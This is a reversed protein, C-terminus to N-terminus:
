YAIMSPVASVLNAYNLICLGIAGAIVLKRPLTSNEYLLGVLAFEFFFFMYSLRNGADIFYTLAILFVGTIYINLFANYIEKKGTMTLRLRLFVFAMIFYKIMTLSYVAYRNFKAHVQTYSLFKNFSFMNIFFELISTIVYQLNLLPLMLAIFLVIQLAYTSYTRFIYLPLLLFVVMSQHVLIAVIVLLYYVIFGKKTMNNLLYTLASYCIVLGMGARIIIGMNYIGMFPFFALFAFHVNDFLKKSTTFWLRFLIIQYIILFGHFGLGLSRTFRGAITYLFEFQSIKGTSEYLRMYVTTDPVSKDRFAFILILGAYLVLLLGLKVDMKFGKAVYVLNALILLIFVALLM